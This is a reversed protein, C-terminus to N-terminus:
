KLNVKPEEDRLLVDGKVLWPVGFAWLSIAEGIFLLSFIGIFVGGLISDLVCIVLGGLIIWGSVKYIRNRLKKRPSPESSSTKTFQFEVIWFLCGFFTMAGVLHIVNSVGEPLMMVNWPAPIMAASTPACPFTSVLIAGCGAIISLVRDKIDYGRYTLLFLGTAMVLGEFLIYSNFYHTSSISAFLPDIGFFRFGFYAFVVSVIPLAMGM